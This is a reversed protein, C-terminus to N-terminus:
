APAGRKPEAELRRAQARTTSGESTQHPCTGGNRWKGFNCNMCLLQFEPPFGNEKIWRWMGYGGAQNSGLLQKRHAAGDNNVHDVSLFHVETEGCCACEHGYASFVIDRLRNKSERARQRSLEPNVRYRAKVRKTAEGPHRESWRKDAAVQQRRKNEHWEPSHERQRDRARFERTYADICGKCRATLTGRQVYRYFDSEPKEVKCKSCTKM